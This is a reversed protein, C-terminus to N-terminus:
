NTAGSLLMCKLKWTAVVCNVQYFGSLTFVFVLVLIFLFFCLTCHGALLPRFIYRDIIHRHYSSM